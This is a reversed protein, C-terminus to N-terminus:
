KHEQLDYFTVGLETCAYAGYLAIAAQQYAIAADELAAFRGLSKQRGGMNITARWKQTAKCWSVGKVGSKSTSRAGSNAANEACTAERLNIWRDDGKVRNIHDIRRKPWVGEMWFWALRHALYLKGGIGITWYGDPRLCGARRGTEIWVFQGNGPDFELVSRVDHLTLGDSKQCTMFSSELNM